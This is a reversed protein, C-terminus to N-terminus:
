IIVMWINSIVSRSNGESQVYTDLVLLAVMM